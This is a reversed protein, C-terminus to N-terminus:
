LVIYNEILVTAPMDVEFDVETDLDDFMELIFSRATVYADIEIASFDASEEVDLSMPFELYDQADQEGFLKSGCTQLAADMEENLDEPEIVYMLRM